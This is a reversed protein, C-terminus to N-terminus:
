CATPGHSQLKWQIVDRAFCLKRHLCSKSVRRSRVTRHWFYFLCWKSMIETPVVQYRSICSELLQFETETAITFLAKSIDTRNWYGLKKQSNQKKYNSTSICIPISSNKNQDTVDLTKDLLDQLRLPRCFPTLSARKLKTNDIKNNLTWLFWVLINSIFNIHYIM